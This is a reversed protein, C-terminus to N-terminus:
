VKQKIIHKGHYACDAYGRVIVKHELKGEMNPSTIKLLIYKFVGSSDIDVDSLHPLVSSCM